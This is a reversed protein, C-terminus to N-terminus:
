ADTIVCRGRSDPSINETKGFFQHARHIPMRFPLFNFEANRGDNDSFYGTYFWVEQFPCSKLLDDIADVSEWVHHLDFLSTRNDLILVTREKGDHNKDMKSKISARIIESLPMDPAPLFSTFLQKGTTFWPNKVESDNTLGTAMHQAIEDATEKDPFMQHIKKMERLTIRENNRAMGMRQESKNIAHLTKNDAISTIEVFFKHSNARSNNVEIDFDWPCDRGSIIIDDDDDLFFRKTWNLYHICIILERQRDDLVDLFIRKQVRGDPLTFYYQKYNDKGELSGIPFFSFKRGSEIARRKKRNSFPSGSAGGQKSRRRPKKKGNNPPLNDNMYM